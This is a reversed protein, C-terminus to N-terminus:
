DISPVSGRPLKPDGEGKGGTWKWNRVEPLDEGHVTIYQKHELLKDRLYQKAYAAHSELQPVRDIV